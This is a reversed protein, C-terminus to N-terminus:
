EWEESKPLFGKPSVYTKRQGTLNFAMEANEVVEKKAQDKLKAYEIESYGAKMRDLLFNNWNCLRNNADIRCALTPKGKLIDSHPLIAFDEKWNNTMIEITQESAMDDIALVKHGNHSGEETIFGHYGEGGDGAFMVFSQQGKPIKKMESSVAWAKKGKGKYRMWIAFGVTAMSGIGMLPVLNEIM